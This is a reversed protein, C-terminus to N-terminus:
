CRGLCTSFSTLIVLISSTLKSAQEPSDDFRKSYIPLFNRSVYDVILNIFIQGLIGAAFYADISRNLGFFASIAVNNFFGIVLAVFIIANVSILKRVLSMATESDAKVASTRQYTPADAFRKQRM